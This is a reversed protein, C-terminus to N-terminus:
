CLSWEDTPQRVFVLPWQEEPEARLMPSRVLLGPSVEWPSTDRFLSVGVQQLAACVLESCFWKAQAADSQRQVRSLFRLVMVYDYPKGLQARLFAKLLDPADDPLGEVRLPQITEQRSTFAQAIDHTTRVRVGVGEIAEYVLGDIRLSIHNWLSRTQFQIARSVWGTGHHALVHVRPLTPLPTM